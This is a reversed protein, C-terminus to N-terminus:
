SRDMEDGELGVGTGALDVRVDLWDDFDVLFLNIILMEM